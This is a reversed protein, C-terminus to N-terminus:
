TKAKDKKKPPIKRMLLGGNKVHDIVNDDLLDWEKPEPKYWEHTPQIKPTDNVKYMRSMAMDKCVPCEIMFPTVGEHIDQTVTVHLNNCTYANLRRKEM